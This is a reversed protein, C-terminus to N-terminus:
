SISQRSQQRAQDLMAQAQQETWRAQPELDVISEFPKLIADDELISHILNAVSKCCSDPAYKMQSVSFRIVSWGKSLLFENWAQDKVNRLYHSPTLAEPDFPEDIEIDIRLGISTDIYAFDMVYPTVGSPSFFSRAFVKGPFYFNLRHLFQTETSTLSLFEQQGDEQVIRNLVQLLRPYRYTHLQEPSHTQRVLQQYSAEKRSYAELAEYYHELNLANSKLRRPYSQGQVWAQFGVGFMGFTLMLLGVIVNAKTVIVSLVIIGVLLAVLVPVNLQPVEAKPMVPPNERFPPLPPMEAKVRRIDPPLLIVPFHDIM